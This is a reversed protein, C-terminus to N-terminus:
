WTVKRNRDRICMETVIENEKIKENNLFLTVNGMVTDEELPAATKTKMHCVLKVEDEDSVLLRIKHEKTRDRICM